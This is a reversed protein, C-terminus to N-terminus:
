LSSQGPKTRRPMVTAISTPPLLLVRHSVFNRYVPVVQLDHNRGALGGPVGPLQQVRDRFRDERMAALRYEDAAGSAAGKGQRFEVNQRPVHDVRRQAVAPDREDIVRVALELRATEHVLQPRPASQM